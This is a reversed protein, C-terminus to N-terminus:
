HPCLSQPSSGVLKESVDIVSCDLFALSLSSLGPPVDSRPDIDKSCRWSGQPDSKFPLTLLMRVSLEYDSTWTLFEAMRLNQPPFFFVNVSRYSSNLMEEIKFVPM